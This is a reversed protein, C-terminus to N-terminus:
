DKKMSWIALGIQLVFLLGMVLWLIQEWLKNSTAALGLCFVVGATNLAMQWGTQNLVMGLKTSDQSAKWRAFGIVALAFALAFIWLANAFLNYWDIMELFWQWLHIPHILNPNIGSIGLTTLFL